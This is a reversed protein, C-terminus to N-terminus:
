RNGRVGSRKASQTPTKPQIKSSSDKIGQQAQENTDKETSAKPTAKKKPREGSTANNQSKKADKLDDVFSIKAMQAKDGLRLGLKEIRFYGSNRASLKPVIEDVLKHAAETTNLASVVQRRAHLSNKGAKAKTVLKETYRSVAKAKPLTTQLSENLILSEALSKLLAQRQSSVRGFKSIKSTGVSM